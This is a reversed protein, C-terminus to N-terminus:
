GYILKSPILFTYPATAIAFTLAMKKRLPKELDKFTVFYNFVYIMVSAIIVAPITLFIEVDFDYLDLYMTSILFGAGILDSLMGFTFIKFIYKKYWEKREAIKLASMAILLVISDFIFNGPLIILWVVPFLMLMWIPFLINYLKVNKKM